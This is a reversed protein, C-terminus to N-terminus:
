TRLILQRSTPGICIMLIHELNFRRRLCHCDVDKMDTMLRNNRYQPEEPRDLM